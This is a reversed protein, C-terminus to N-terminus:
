EIGRMWTSILLMVLGAAIWVLTALMSSGAGRQDVGLLAISRTWAAVAMVGLGSVVLKRGQDTGEKRGSVFSGSLILFCSLLFMPILIIASGTSPISFVGFVGAGIAAHTLWLRNLPGGKALLSVFREHM